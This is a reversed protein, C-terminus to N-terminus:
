GRLMDIATIFARQDGTRNMIPAITSTANIAECTEIPSMPRTETALSCQVEVAGVHLYVLREHGKAM